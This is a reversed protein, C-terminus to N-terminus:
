SLIKSPCSWVDTLSLHHVIAKFLEFTISSDYLANHCKHPDHDINFYEVLTGLKYNKPSPSFKQSKGRVIELTDLHLCKNPNNLRDRITHPFRQLAKDLFFKDFKNSNHGIMVVPNLSSLWDFFMEWGTELNIAYKIKDDTIKTIEVVKEPITDVSKVLTQFSSIEIGNSVAIAGIQIAECSQPNLGSTELDYFVWM